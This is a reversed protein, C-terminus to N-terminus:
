SLSAERKETEVTKAHVGNSFPKPCAEVSCKKAFFNTNHDEGLILDVNSRLPEYPCWDFVLINNQSLIGIVSSSLIVNAFYEKTCSHVQFEDETRPSTRFNLRDFKRAPREEVFFPMEDRELLEQCTNRSKSKLAQLSLMRIRSVKIPFIQKYM